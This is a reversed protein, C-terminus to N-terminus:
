LWRFVKQPVHPTWSLKANAERVEHGWDNGSLEFPADLCCEGPMSVGDIVIADKMGCIFGPSPNQGFVLELGTAIPEFFNTVCDETINNIHDDVTNLFIVKAAANDNQEDVYSLDM